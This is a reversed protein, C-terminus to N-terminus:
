APHPPGPHRRAPRRPPRPNPWFYFENLKHSLENESFFNEHFNSFTSNKLFVRIEHVVKHVLHNMFYPCKWFIRFIECTLLFADAPKLASMIVKYAGPSRQARDDILKPAKRVSFVTARLAPIKQPLRLFGSKLDYQFVWIEINLFFYKQNSVRVSNTQRTPARNERNSSSINECKLTITAQLAAKKLHKEDQLM